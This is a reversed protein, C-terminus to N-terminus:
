DIPEIERGVDEDDSGGSQGDAVPGGVEVQRLPREVAQRQGIPREQREM